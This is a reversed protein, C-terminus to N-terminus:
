ALHTAYVLGGPIVLALATRLASGKAESPQSSIVAYILMVGGLLAIQFGVLMFYHLALKIGLQPDPAPDRQARWRAIVYLVLPAALLVTTLLWGLVPAALARIVFSDFGTDM